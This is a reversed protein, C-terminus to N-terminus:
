RTSLTATLSITGITFHETPQVIVDTTPSSLELYDVGTVSTVIGYIDSVILRKGIRAVMTRFYTDLALNVNSLVSAANATKLVFVQGTIDQIVPQSIVVTYFTNMYKSSQMYAHFAATDSPVLWTNNDVLITLEVVNMLTPDNPNIDRQARPLCDLVGSYQTAIAMTDAYTVASGHANALQPGVAKYYTAPRQAFGSTVPSTTSGSLAPVAAVTATATTASATAHLGSTIQNTDGSTTAYTVLVVSGSPPIVGAHGNGFMIEVDGDPLTKDFFVQDATSFNWLPQETRNYVVGNVTVYVNLNGVIFGAANLRFRQFETGDSTFSVTRVIGEHLTFTHPTSPTVIFPAENFCPITGASFSHYAPVQINGIAATTSLTMTASSPVKRTLRVGLMLMASYISVDKTATDPYCEQLAREIEFQSYTIGAAVLDIITNGINGTYQDTWTPQAALIQLLRSKNGLIDPTVAELSTPLVPVVPTPM